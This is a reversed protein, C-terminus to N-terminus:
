DRCDADHRRVVYGVKLAEVAEGAVPTVGTSPRRLAHVQGTLPHADDAGPGGTDLEDRLDGLVDAMQRHELARGIVTRREAIRGDIGFRLALDLRAVRVDELLTVFGCARKHM